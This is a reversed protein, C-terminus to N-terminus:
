KKNKILNLIIIGLICSSVVLTILNAFFIPMDMTLFGYIMWLFVGSVLCVYMALSLNATERSKITKYAQPIFSITTLIAALTGITSIEM